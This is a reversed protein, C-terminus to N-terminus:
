RAGRRLPRHGPFVAGWVCPRQTPMAGTPPRKAGRGTQFVGMEGAQPAGEGASSVAANEHVFVPCKLLVKKCARGQHPAYCGPQARVFINKLSFVCLDIPVHFIFTYFICLFVQLSNKEVKFDSSLKFGHCFDCNLCLMSINFM